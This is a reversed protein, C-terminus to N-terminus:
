GPRPNGAPALRRVEGAPDPCVLVGNSNGVEGRCSGLDLSAPVWNDRSDRCEGTLVSGQVVLERCSQLYSGKPIPAHVQRGGCHPVAAENQEQGM